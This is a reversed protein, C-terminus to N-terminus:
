CIEDGPLVKRLYVTTDRSIPSNFEVMLEGDRDDSPVVVGVAMWITHCGKRSMDAGPVVALYRPETKKQRAM